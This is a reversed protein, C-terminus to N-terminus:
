QSPSEEVAQPVQGADAPAAAEQDAVLESVLGILTEDDIADLQAQTLQGTNKLIERIAEPDNVLADLDEPSGVQGAPNGAGLFPLNPAVPADALDVDLLGGTDEPDPGQNDATGCQQGEPCLPDTGAVIEQKDRIGDSDTDPLYPSTNHFYLEEYNNIGDQDTDLAQQRIDEDTFLEAIDQNENEVLVSAFPGHLTNRMQLFGMGITLIGFVLLLTFGVKQERSLRHQDADNM